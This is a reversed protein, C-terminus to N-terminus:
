FPHSTRYLIENAGCCSRMVCGDASPYPSHPPPPPLLLLLLLLLTVISV